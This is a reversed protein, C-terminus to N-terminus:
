AFGKRRRLYWELAMAAILAVYFGPLHWLHLLVTDADERRPLPIAQALEALSDLTYVKGGAHDALDALFQPNYQALQYERYDPEVLIAEEVTGIIEDKDNIASLNVKYLGPDEPTFEAAYLGTEQISEEVPLLSEQDAPSTLTVSTRLSERRLFEDDRVVFELKALNNQTYADLKERLYSAEPVAHVLSRVLQRWFREHRDDDDALRMQWQWTDGTALAACRGEGYPQVAYLPAGDLSENPAFAVAMVTAGPRVLAFRNLGYLTPMEDWLYENQSASPHFSWAGTLAGELTPKAAYTERFRDAQTESDFLVFPLLPEIISRAYNGATFSAPGGMLMLSGGRKEVFDRTLEMQQMTFFEREVEGWILLDFDFLNDATIPYGSLDKADPGLRLFVAEDYRPRDQAEDFGEFLPNTLTTKEAGRFEFKQEADSIVILSTMRLQEDEELARRVFKNEWNPRGSVYLIKYAKKRNDVVFRRSNNEEIKEGPPPIANGEGDRVPEGPELRVRAEYELWGERDPIFELRVESEQRDQALPITKSAVVREGLRAEVTASRGALGTSLVDATLVVPSKDFETRRVGIRGIEIDRWVATSDVGVTYIPPADPLDAIQPAGEPTQQVGDSFMVIASIHTGAMDRVAAHVAGTLDSEQQAFELDAIDQLPEITTGFRYRAIQHKRKLTGEFEEAQATYAARLREGRSRGDEGAIRMSRSDDFLLVVFQEGPKIRKAVIVPDLALFVVLFLAVARLTLLVARYGRPLQALKRRYYWLIGFVAAAILALCIWLPLPTNFGFYTPVLDDARDGALWHTLRDLM